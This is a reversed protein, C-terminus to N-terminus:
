HSEAVKAHVEHGALRALARYVWFAEEHWVGHRLVQPSFGTIRRTERILHSQDSFGNELAIQTWDLRDELIAALVAAFTAEGRVSGQLKRLSWGTWHKIRRESQRLSRGWGTAAARLALAEMWPALALNQGRGDQSPTHQRWNPSRKQWIQLLDAFFREVCQDVDESDTLRQFALLLDPPLVDNADFIQDSLTHPQFGTLASFADPYLIVMFAAVEPGYFVSLPASHPGTVPLRPMPLRAAKPNDGAGAALLEARGRVLVGMTCMPGAPYYGWRQPESLTMGVTSRWFVARVCAHLGWPPLWTRVPSFPAPAFPM